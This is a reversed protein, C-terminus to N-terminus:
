VGSLKLIAPLKTIAEPAFETLAQYILAWNYAIYGGAFEGKERKTVTKKDKEWKGSIKDIDDLATVVEVRLKSWNPKLAARTLGSTFEWDELILETAKIQDHVNKKNWEAMWVLASKNATSPIGACSTALILIISLVVLKNLRRKM